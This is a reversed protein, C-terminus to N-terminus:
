VTSDWQWSLYQRYAAADELRGGEAQRMGSQDGGFGPPTYGHPPCNKRVLPNSGVGHTSGRNMPGYGQPQCNHRTLPGNGAALSPGANNYGTCDNSVGTTGCQGRAYYQGGGAILSPTPELKAMRSATM